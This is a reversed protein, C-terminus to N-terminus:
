RGKVYRFFLTQGCHTAMMSLRAIANRQHAATTSAAVPPAQAAAAAAAAAAALVTARHLCALPPTNNENRPFMNHSIATPTQGEVVLYTWRSIKPTVHHTILGTFSREHITERYLSPHHNSPPSLGLFVHCRYSTKRFEQRDTKKALVILPNSVLL